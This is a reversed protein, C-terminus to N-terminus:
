AKHYLLGSEDGVVRGHFQDDLEAAVLLRRRDVVAGRRAEAL